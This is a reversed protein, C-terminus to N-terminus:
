HQDSNTKEYGLTEREVFRVPIEKHREVEEGDILSIVSEVSESAIKRFDCHMTTLKPSLYRSISIDDFGIISVDEPIRYGLDKLANMAGIAM